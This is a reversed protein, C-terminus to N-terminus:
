EPIVPDIVMSGFVPLLSSTGTTTRSTLPSPFKTISGFHFAKSTSGGNTAPQRPRETGKSYSPDRGDKM